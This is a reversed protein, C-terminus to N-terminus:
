VLIGHIIVILAYIIIQFLLQSCENSLAEAFIVKSESSGIDNKRRTNKSKSLSLSFFVRFFSSFLNASDIRWWDAVSEISQSEFIIHVRRNIRAANGAFLRTSLDINQEPVPCVALERM